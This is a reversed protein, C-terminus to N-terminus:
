RRGGSERVTKRGGTNGTKETQLHMELLALCYKRKRPSSGFTRSIEWRLRKVEYDEM